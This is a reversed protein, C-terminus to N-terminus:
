ISNGHGGLFKTLSHVIIDAGFDKPRCLYPTALTNDVILPVGAKRAVASIAPLAVVIAGPTATSECFTARTKPPAAKASSPPDAARGFIPGATPPAGGPSVRPPPPAGGM